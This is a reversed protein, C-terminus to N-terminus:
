LLLRITGIFSAYIEGTLHVLGCCLRDHMTQNRAKVNKMPVYWVVYKIVFYAVIRVWFSVGFLEPRLFGFVFSFVKLGFWFFFM